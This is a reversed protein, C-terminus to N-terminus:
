RQQESRKAKKILRDYRYQLASRALQVTEDEPLLTPEGLRLIAQRTYHLAQDVDRAQHEYYKALEVYPAHGGERHAVMEEWVQIASSPNGMRKYAASLHWHGATRMRGSQILRFCRVAAQHHRRRTLSRGMSLLDEGHHLLEPAHYLQTIRQLLTWLSCIDQRNHAIVPALLDPVGTKLYQFYREPVERGPIDGHRPVGLVREELVGLTCRRLRLKWVRRALHLLDIHPLYGAPPRIRNMMMRTHLLPLDFSKGNFTCIARAANMAALVQQLVAEEDPYDRMVYQTVTFGEVTLRGLGVLFAVTGAGGSLGTTETDLFLIDAPVLGEPLPEDLMLQLAAMEMGTDALHICTEEMWLTRQAPPIAPQGKKQAPVGTNLQKLKDRLNM